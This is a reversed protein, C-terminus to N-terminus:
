WKLDVGLTSGVFSMLTILLASGVIQLGWQVWGRRASSADDRWTELETVRAPDVLKEEIVREIKGLRRNIESQQSKVVELGAYLQMKLGADDDPPPTM